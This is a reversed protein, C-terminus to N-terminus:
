NFVYNFLYKGDYIIDALYIGDKLDPADFTCVYVISDETLETQNLMFDDMVESAYYSSTSVSSIPFYINLRSLLVEAKEDLDERDNELIYANGVGNEIKAVTAISTTMQASRSWIITAILFVAIAILILWIGPNMVKIYEDLKDPSSIKNDKKKKLNDNSM